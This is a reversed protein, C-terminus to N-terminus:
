ALIMRYDTSTWEESSETRETAHDLSAARDRFAAGVGAARGGAPPVAAAARAGSPRSAILAPAPVCDPRDISWTSWLPPLAHSHEGTEDREDSDEAGEADGHRLRRCREADHRRRRGAAAPVAGRPRHLRGQLLGADDRVH